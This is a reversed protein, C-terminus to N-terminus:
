QRPAPLRPELWVDGGERHVRYLRSGLGDPTVAKFRALAPHDLVMFLLHENAALLAAFGAQDKNLVDAPSVTTQIPSFDYTAM